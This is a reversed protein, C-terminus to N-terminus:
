ESEIEKRMADRAEAVARTLNTLDSSNLRATGNMSLDLSQDYVVLKMQVHNQATKRIVVRLPPVKQGCMEAKWEQMDKSSMNPIYTGDINASSSYERNHEDTPKLKKPKDWKLLSM